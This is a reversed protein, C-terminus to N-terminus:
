SLESTRTRKSGASSVSNPSSISPPSAKEGQKVEVRMTDVPPVATAGAGSLRPKVDVPTRCSKKAINSSNLIKNPIKTENAKKDASKNSKSLGEIVSHIKQRHRKMNSKQTFQRGCDICAFPKEKTHTRLHVILGALKGEQSLEELLVQVHLMKGKEQESPHTVKTVNSSLATMPLSKTYKNRSIDMGVKFMNEDMWDFSGM